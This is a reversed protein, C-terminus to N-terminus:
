CYCFSVKGPTMQASQTETGIASSNRSAITDGRAVDSMLSTRKNPIHHINDYRLAGILVIYIM